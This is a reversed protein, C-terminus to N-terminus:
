NSKGLIHNGIRWALMEVTGGPNGDISAPIISADVVRLNSTGHVRGWKSTVAGSEISNGMRNMGQYHHGNTVNNQIFTALAVPDDLVDMTPVILIYGKNNVLDKIMPITITQFANISAQLDAPDHLFGIDVQAIKLPDANQIKITGVSQPLLPSETVLPWVPVPGGTLLLASLEFNRQDLPTGAGPLPLFAGATYYTGPQTNQTSTFPPILVSVIFYNIKMNIGVNPNAIVVDVGAEKLVDVPGIGNVQLFASSNFGASIIVEKAAKIFIPVGNKLAYVGTIRQCKRDCKSDDFALHTATTQTLIRLKRGNLGRGNEDVIKGEQLFTRSSSARTGDPFQFYQFKRFIGIPTDPSNYDDIEVTGPAGTSQLSSIFDPTLNSDPVGARVAMLGHYGHNQPDSIPGYFNEMAKFADYIKDPSWDPGLIAEWSEYRKKSGRAYIQGNVSSGGGLVRGNTWNFTRGGADPDPLTNGQWYYETGGDNSYPVTVAPQPGVVIPDNDANQGAEISIVSNTRNSSLREAIVAGAMGTGIIVYDAHYQKVTNSM